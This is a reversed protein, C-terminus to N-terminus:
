IRGSNESEQITWRCPALWLLIEDTHKVNKVTGSDQGWLPNLLPECFLSVFPIDPPYHELGQGLGRARV